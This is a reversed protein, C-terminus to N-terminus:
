NWVSPINQSGQYLSHNLFWRELKYIGNLERRVRMGKSQSKEDRRGLEKGTQGAPQHLGRQVSSLALSPWSLPPFCGVLTGRLELWGEAGTKILWAGGDTVRTGYIFASVLALGNNKRQCSAKREQLGGM